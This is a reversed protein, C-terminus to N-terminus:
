AEKVLLGKDKYVDAVEDCLIDLESIIGDMKEICEKFSDKQFKLKCYANNKMDYIFDRLEDQSSVIKDLANFFSRHANEDVFEYGELSDKEEIVKSDVMFIGISNFDAAFICIIM